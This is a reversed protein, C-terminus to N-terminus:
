QFIKVNHCAILKAASDGYCYIKDAPDDSEIEIKVVDGLEGTDTSVVAYSDQLEGDIETLVPDAAVINKIPEGLHEQYWLVPHSHSSYGVAGNATVLEWIPEDHVIRVARVRFFCQKVPHWLWHADTLRGAHTLAIKGDAGRVRVFQDVRPCPVEGGGGDDGGGGGGTPDGGSSRFLM